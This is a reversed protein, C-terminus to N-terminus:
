GHTVHTLSKSQVEEEEEEKEEEEEEEEEEEGIADPQHHSFWEGLITSGYRQVQTCCMTDPLRCLMYNDSPLINHKALCDHGTELRFAAVAVTGNADPQHHSFWGLITSGYRQVQTCCMTDPLRCLM